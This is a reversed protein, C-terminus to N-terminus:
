AGDGHSKWVWHMHIRQCATVCYVLLSATFGKECKLHVLTVVTELRTQNPPFVLANLWLSLNIVVDSVGITIMVFIRYLHIYLAQIFAIDTM